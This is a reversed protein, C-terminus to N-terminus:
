SSTVMSRTPLASAGFTSVTRVLGFWDGLLGVGPWFASNSFTQCFKASACGSQCILKSYKLGSM